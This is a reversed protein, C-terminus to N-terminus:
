CKLDGFMVRHNATFKNLIFFSSCQMRWHFLQKKPHGLFTNVGFVLNNMDYAPEDCYNFLHEGPETNHTLEYELIYNVVKNNEKFAGITVPPIFNNENFSSILHKVQEEAWVFSRQYPPLIINKTVILEIWHFLSYEGYYIKTEM